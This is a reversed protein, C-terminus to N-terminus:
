SAWLPPLEILVPEADSGTLTWCRHSRKPMAARQHYLYMAAAREAPGRPSLGLMPNPEKGERHSYCWVYGPFFRSDDM